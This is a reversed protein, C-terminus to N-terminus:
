ISPSISRKNRRFCFKLLLNLCTLTFIFMWLASLAYIAYIKLADFLQSGDTMERNEKVSAAFDNHALNLVEESKGLTEHEDKRLESSESLSREIEELITPM